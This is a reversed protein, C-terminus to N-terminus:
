RTEGGAMARLWRLAERQDSNAAPDSGVAALVAGAEATKEAMLLAFAQYIRADLARPGGQGAAAFHKAATAYDRRALAGIAL